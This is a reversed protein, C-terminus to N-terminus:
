VAVGDRQHRESPGSTWVHSSMPTSRCQTMEEEDDDTQTWMSAMSDDAGSERMRKEEAQRRQEEEDIEVLPWCPFFLREGYEDAHAGPVQAARLVALHQGVSAGDAAVRSAGRRAPAALAGDEPAFDVRITRVKEEPKGRHLHRVAGAARLQKMLGQHWDAIRRHFFRALDSAIQRPWRRWVM